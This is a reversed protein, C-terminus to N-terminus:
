TDLDENAGFQIPNVFISTVVHDARARAEEILALHGEHLAGMTPVLAIRKRTGAPGSGRLAAIAERLLTLERIIQVNIFAGILATMAQGLNSHLSPPVPDLDRIADPSCGPGHRVSLCMIDHLHSSFVDSSWDSIRM